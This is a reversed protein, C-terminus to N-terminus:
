PFAPEREGGSGEAALSYMSWVRLAEWTGAERKLVPCMYAGKVRM